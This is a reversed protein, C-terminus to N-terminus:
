RVLFLQNKYEKYEAKDKSIKKDIDNTQPQIYKFEANQNNTYEFKFSKAM